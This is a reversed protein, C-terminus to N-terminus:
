RGGIPLGCVRLAKPDLRKELIYFFALLSQQHFHVRSRVCRHVSMRTFQLLEIDELAGEVILVRSQLGPVIAAAGGTRGMLRARHVTRDHKENVGPVVWRLASRVYFMQERTPEPVQALRDIRMMRPRGWPDTEYTGMGECALLRTSVSDCFRRANVFNRPTYVSFSGGFGRGLGGPAGAMM